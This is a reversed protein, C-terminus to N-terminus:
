PVQPIPLDLLLAELIAHQHSGIDAKLDRLRKAESAILKITADAGFSEISQGIADHHSVAFEAALKAAWNVLQPKSETASLITTVSEYVNDPNAPDVYYRNDGKEFRGIIGHETTM